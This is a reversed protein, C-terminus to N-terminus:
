VIEKTNPTSAELKSDRLFNEIRALSTNVDGDDVSINSDSTDTRFRNRPAPSKNAPSALDIEYEDDSAFEEGTRGDGHLGQGLGEGEEDLSGLSLRRPPTEEEASHGISHTLSLDYHEDDDDNSMTSNPSIADDMSGNRMKKRRKRRRKSAMVLKVDQIFDQMAIGDGFRPEHTSKRRMEERQRYGEAWEDPSFVFCHATAAFLMELCILFNQARKVFDDADDHSDFKDAYAVNVIISITM